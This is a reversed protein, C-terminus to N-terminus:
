DVDGGKVPPTCPNTRQSAEGPTVRQTKLWAEVDSWYYRAHRGVRIYAPGTGGSAWQDLTAPPVKLYTAVEGRSALPEPRQSVSSKTM